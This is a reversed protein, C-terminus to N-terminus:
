VNCLQLQIPGRSSRRRSRVDRSTTKFTEDWDRRPSTAIVDRRSVMVGIDGDRRPRTVGFDRDRSESTETEDRDWRWVDRKCGQHSHFLCFLHITGNLQLYNDSNEGKLKDKIGHSIQKCWATCEDGIYSKGVFFESLIHHICEKVITPRFRCKIAAFM